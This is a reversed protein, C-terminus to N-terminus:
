KRERRPLVVCWVPPAAQKTRRAHAAAAAARPRPNKNKRGPPPLLALRTDKIITAVVLWRDGGLGLATGGGHCCSAAGVPPM